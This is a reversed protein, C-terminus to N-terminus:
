CLCYFKFSQIIVALIKTVSLLKAVTSVEFDLVWNIHRSVKRCLIIM